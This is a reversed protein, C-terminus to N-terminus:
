FNDMEIEKALYIAVAQRKCERKVLKEYEAPFSNQLHRLEKQAKLGEKVAENELRVKVKAKIQDAEGDKFVIKKQKWLINFAREPILGIINSSKFISKVTEILLDDDTIPEGQPLHNHILEKEELQRVKSREALYQNVPEDILSLNMNKGWDKVSTGYKRMAYEIENISLHSYDENMKKAFQEYLINQIPGAEPLAWGTIISIKVALGISHLELEKASLERIFRDQYMLQWIEKEESSWTLEEISNKLQPYRQAKV